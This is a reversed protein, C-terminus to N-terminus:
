FIIKREFTNFIFEENELHVINLIEKFDNITLIGSDPTATEFNVV